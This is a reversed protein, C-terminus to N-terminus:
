KEFSVNGNQISISVFLRAKNKGWFPFVPAGRRALFLGPCCVGAAATVGFNALDLIFYWDDHFDNITGGRPKIVGLSM